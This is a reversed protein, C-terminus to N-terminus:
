GGHAGGALQRRLADVLRASSEPGAHVLDACRARLTVLEATAALLTAVDDPAAAIAVADRVRGSDQRVRNGLDAIVGHDDDIAHRGKGDTAYSWPGTSVHAWRARIASLAEDTLPSDARDRRKAM